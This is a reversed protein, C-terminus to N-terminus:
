APLAELAADVVSALLKRDPLSISMVRLGQVMTTLFAAISEVDSEYPIQGAARASHLASAFASRTANIADQAIRAAMPDHAAREVIAGVLLCGPRDRETLSDDVRELLLDRVAQRVPVQRSLQDRLHRNVVDVYHRLSREYVEQKSGFAAYLSGRGLGTVECLDAVSTAEYGKAWFLRMIKLLAEDEAFGRQRTM